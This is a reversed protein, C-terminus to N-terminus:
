SGSDSGTITVNAVNDEKTYRRSRQENMKARPAVGDMAIYVLVPNCSEIIHDLEKFVKSLMRSPTKPKKKAQNRRLAVHFLANIDLYLFTEDRSNTTEVIHPYRTSLWKFFGPIGM